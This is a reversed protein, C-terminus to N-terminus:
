PARGTVFATTAQPQTGKRDRIRMSLISVVSAQPENDKGDWCDIEVCRCGMLLHRRYMDASSESRLQHGTLYSNHSSACFYDSLPRTMDQCVGRHEPSLADNHASLLWAAFRPLSLTASAQALEASSEAQGDGEAGRCFGAAKAWADASEGDDFGQEVQAFLMFGEKHLEERGETYEAFLAQVGGGEVEGSM